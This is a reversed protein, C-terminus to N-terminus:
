HGDASVAGPDDSAGGGGDGSDGKEVDETPEKVSPDNTVEQSAAAAM